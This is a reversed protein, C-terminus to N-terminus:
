ILYFRNIEAYLYQLRYNVGIIVDVRHVVVQCKQLYLFSRGLLIQGAQRRRLLPRRFILEACNDSPALLFGRVQFAGFHKMLSLHFNIM